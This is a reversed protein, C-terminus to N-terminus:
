SSFYPSQLTELIGKFVKYVKYKGKLGGRESPTEKQKAVSNFFTYGTYRTWDSGLFCPM